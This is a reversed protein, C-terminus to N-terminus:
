PPPAAVPMVCVNASCMLAGTCRGNPLCPEHERGAGPATDTYRIARVVVTGEGKGERATNLAMTASVIVMADAGCACADPHARKLAGNVTRDDFSTRGAHADVICAVEYSRKVDREAEFLDLHCQPHKPPGPKMPVTPGAACGVAVAIWLGIVTSRM